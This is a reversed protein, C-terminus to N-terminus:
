GGGDFAACRHFEILNLAGTLWPGVGLLASGQRGRAGAGCLSSYRRRTGCPDLPLEHRACTGPWLCDYGHLGQFLDGYQVSWGQVCVLDQDLCWQRRRGAGSTARPSPCVVCCRWQWRLSVETKDGATIGLTGNEASYTTGGVTFFIDGSRFWPKGNLQISFSADSAVSIDISSAQAAVFGVCVMITLPLIGRWRNEPRM